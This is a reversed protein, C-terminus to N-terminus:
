SRRWNLEFEFPEVPRGFDFSEVWWLAADPLKATWSEGSPVSAIAHVWVSAQAGPRWQECIALAVPCRDSEYPEGKAIHDATVKISEPPKM